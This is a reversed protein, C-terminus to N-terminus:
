SQAVFSLVRQSSCIVFWQLKFMLLLDVDCVTVPYITFQVLQYSLCIKDLIFYSNAWNMIIRVMQHQMLPLFYAPSHTNACWSRSSSRQMSSRPSRTLKPESSIVVDCIFVWTRAERQQSTSPRCATHSVYNPAIFVQIVAAPWIVYSRAGLEIVWTM